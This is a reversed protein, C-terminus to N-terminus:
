FTIFKSRLILRDFTKVEIKLFVLWIYKSIILKDVFKLKSKLEDNLITRFVGNKLNLLGIRM